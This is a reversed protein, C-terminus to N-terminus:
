KPNFGCLDSLDSFESGAVLEVRQACRPSLRAIRCFTMVCLQSAPLNLFGRWMLWRGRLWGDFFVLFIHQLALKHTMKM